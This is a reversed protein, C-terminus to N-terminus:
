KLDWKAKKIPKYAKRWAVNYDIRYANGDKRKDLAWGTNSKKVKVSVEPHHAAMWYTTKKILEVDRVISCGGSANSKEEFAYKGVLRTKYGKNLFCISMHTDEGIFNPIPNFVAGVKKFVESDILFSNRVGTIDLYETIRNNGFRRSIGVYPVKEVQKRMYIFMNIIDKKTAKQLKDKRAYYTLDDDMQWIYKYDDSFSEMIFQRRDAIHIPDSKLSIVNKTIKRYQKYEKDAVLYVWKIINDPFLAHTKCTEARLYSPIVIITDKIDMTNVISNMPLIQGLFTVILTM